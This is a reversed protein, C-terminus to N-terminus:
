AKFRRVQAAFSKLMDGSAHAGYRLEVYRQVLADADDALEPRLSRIRQAFDLPGESPMRALGAKELKACFRLYLAQVKDPAPRRGPWLTFAAILGLVAGLGIALGWVLERWSVIGLGLRAFLGIQQEQDFGLVWLDWYTSVADWQQRLQKLWAIDTRLLFPLPEGAALASAIGNQIRSASVAATPDVRVWGRGDLWVESWAHADSQRVIFYGGAPNFEGGQYGAVIRAPVGAARMLFTFASAYHECFGSRTAFLFEDISNEGLLPPTLTYSYGQERFLALARAVVEADNGAESRLRLALERAQPNGQEPLQLAHGLQPLTADAAVRHDLYASLNLRTLRQMPTNAMLQLSRTLFSDPPLAQPDPVELAFIWPKDHPEITLSYAIPTGTTELTPEPGHRGRLRSWTRGDFSELVLARWYLSSPMPPAGEFQARFAIADSQVLESISGPAITESLGSKASFADSPLGWLPGGLRPFLVFLLLMVPVAQALLLASLQLPARWRRASAPHNLAILAGTLVLVVAFLYVALPIDQTYFFNTIVLFYGLFVTLMADRYSRMELLKLALMLTLMAVGADRGFLTRYEFLIGAASGALLLVLIWKGPLPLRGAAAAWRWAIMALAIASLWPPLHLAHPALVLTIGAFLWHGAPLPPFSARSPM